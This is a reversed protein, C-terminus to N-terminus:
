AVKQKQPLIAVQWPDAYVIQSRAPNKCRILRITHGRRRAAAYMNHGYRKWGLETFYFRVRPNTVHPYPIDDLGEVLGAMFAGRLNTGSPRQEVFRGEADRVCELTDILIRYIM